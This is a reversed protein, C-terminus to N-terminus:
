ATPSFPCHQQLLFPHNCSLVAELSCTGRKGHIRASQRALSGERLCQVPRHNPWKHPLQHHASVWAADGGALSIRFGCFVGGFRWHWICCEGSAGFGRRVFKLSARWHGKPWDGFHVERKPSWLRGDSRAHKQTAKAESLVVLGYSSCRCPVDLTAYHQQQLDICLSLKPIWHGMNTLFKGDLARFCCRCPFQKTSFTSFVPVEGTLFVRTSKTPWIGLGRIVALQPRGCFQYEHYVWDLYADVHSDTGDGLGSQQACSIGSTWSKQQQSNTEKSALRASSPLQQLKGLAVVSLVRPSLSCALFARSLFPWFLSLLPSYRSMDWFVKSFLIDFGLQMSAGCDKLTPRMLCSWWARPTPLLPQFQRWHRLSWSCIRSTLASNTLGFPGAPSSIDVLMHLWLSWCPGLLCADSCFARLFSKRWLVWAAAQHLSVLWPWLVLFSPSSLRRTWTWTTVPPWWSWGRQASRPIRFSFISMPFRSFGPSTGVEVVQESSPHELKSVGFVRKEGKQILRLAWSKWSEARAKRLFKFPSTSSLTQCPFMGLFLKCTVDAGFAARFLGHYKAFAALDAVAQM